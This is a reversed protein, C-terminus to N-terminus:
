PIAALKICTGHGGGNVASPRAAKPWRGTITEHM